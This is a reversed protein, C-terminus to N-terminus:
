ETKKKEEFYQPYWARVLDARDKKGAQELHAAYSRLRKARSM